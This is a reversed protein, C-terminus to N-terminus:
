GGRSVLRDRESDFESSISRISADGSEYITVVEFKVYALEERLRELTVFHNILSFDPGSVPQMGWGQAEITRLRTHRWNRYRRPSRLPDAANRWLLRAFAQPRWNWPQGPRHLQIPKEGYFQSNKNLTSFVFLGGDVLVRHIEKFAIQRGSEDLTDIGNFSFLVFDFSQDDFPLDRADGWRIDARPYRRGCAAVMERSYDIGVYSDSLLALMGVTRGAGVGIDLLRKGRVVAAVALLAAQEGHDTWGLSDSYEHVVERRNYIEQNDM